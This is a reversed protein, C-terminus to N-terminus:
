ARRKQWKAVRDATVSPNEEKLEFGLLCLCRITLTDRAIATRIQLILSKLSNQVSEPADAPNHHRRRLLQGDPIIKGFNRNHEALVLGQQRTLKYRLNLERLEEGDREELDALMDQEDRKSVEPWFMGDTAEIAHRLVSLLTKASRAASGRSEGLTELPVEGIIIERQIRLLALALNFANPNKFFRAATLVQTESLFGRTKLCLFHKM